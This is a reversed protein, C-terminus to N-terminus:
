VRFTYGGQKILFELFKEGARDVIDFVEEFAEQGKAYYPDPVITEEGRHPDFPRYLMVKEGLHQIGEKKALAIIENYNNEDMALIYDFRFFDDAIFKRSKHTLEFGRGTATRRMRLDALLGDHYGSTGASDCSIWKTLGAKEVKDRFVGEAVPSRCINGLCVFLVNIKKEPTNNM